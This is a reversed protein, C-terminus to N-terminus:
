KWPSHLWHCHVQNIHFLCISLTTNPFIANMAVRVAGEMDMRFQRVNWALGLRVLEDQVARLMEEYIQLSSLPFSFHFSPSSSPPSAAALSPESSTCRSRQFYLLCIFMSSSVPSPAVQSAKPVDFIGDGFALEAEALHRLTQDSAFLLVRGQISAQERFIPISVGAGNPTTSKLFEPVEYDAFTPAEEELRGGNAAQHRFFCLGVM